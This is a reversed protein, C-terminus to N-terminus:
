LISIVSVLLPKRFSMTPFAKISGRPGINDRGAGELVSHRSTHLTM